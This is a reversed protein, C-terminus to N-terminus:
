VAEERVPLVQIDRLRRGHKAIRRVIRVGAAPERPDVPPLSALLRGDAHEGVLTRAIRRQAASRARAYLRARLGDRAGRARRGLLGVVQRWRGARWGDELAARAQTLAACRDAARAEPPYGVLDDDAIATGPHRPETALRLAADCALCVTHARGPAFEVPLLCRACYTLPSSTM